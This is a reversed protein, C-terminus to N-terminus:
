LTIRIGNDIMAATLPTRAFPLAVAALTVWPSDPCPPCSASGPQCMTPLSVPPPPTWIVGAKYGDGTRSEQYELGHCGCAPAPAAELGDQWDQYRVAVYALVRRVAIGALQSPRFWLFDEINVLVSGPVEIEDGYPGIAVGPCIKVAWPHTADGAPVVLLGCLVGWGHLERNHRRLRQLRYNQEMTCAAATLYSEPQWHPRTTPGARPTPCNKPNAM